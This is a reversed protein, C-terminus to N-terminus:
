RSKVFFRIGDKMCELKESKSINNTIVFEQKGYARKYIRTFQDDNSYNLFLYKASGLDFNKPMDGDKNIAVEYGEAILYDLLEDDEKIVSYNVLLVINKRVSYIHTCAILLKLFSKKSFVKNPVRIFVKEKKGKLLNKVLELTILTLGSKYIDMEYNNKVYNVEKYNFNFLEENHYEIDAVKFADDILLYTIRFNDNDLLNIFSKDLKIFKYFVVEVEEISENIVSKFTKLDNFYVERISKNLVTAFSIDGCKDTNIYKLVSIFFMTADVIFLYQQKTEKDKLEMRSTVGYDIMLKLMMNTNIDCKLGTINNLENSDLIDEGLSVENLYDYVIDKFKNSLKFDNLGNKVLISVFSTIMTANLELYRDVLNDM